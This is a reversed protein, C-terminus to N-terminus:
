QIANKVDFLWINKMIKLTNITTDLELVQELTYVAVDRKMYLEDDVYKEVQGVFQLAYEKMAQVVREEQDWNLQIHESLLTRANKTM